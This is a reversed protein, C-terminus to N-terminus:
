AQARAEVQAPRAFFNAINCTGKAAEQLAKSPGGTEKPAVNEIEKFPSAAWGTAKWKGLSAEALAAAIM